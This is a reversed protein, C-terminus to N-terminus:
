SNFKKATWGATAGEQPGQVLAEAVAETATLAGGAEWEDAFRHNGLRAQLERALVEVNQDDWVPFGARTRGREAAALVRTAREPLGEAALVAGAESMGDWLTYHDDLEAALRIAERLEPIARDIREERVWCKGTMLHSDAVEAVWGEREFIPRAEAFLRRTEEFNRAYYEVVGKAAIARASEVADAVLRLASEAAQRGRDIDGMRAAVQAIDKLVVVRESEVAPNGERTSRALDDMWRLAEEKLRLADPLRGRAWEIESARIRAEIELSLDSTGPLALAQEVFSAAEVLQGRYVWLYGMGSMLRLADARRREHLVFDGAARINEREADLYRITTLEMRQTRPIAEVALAVFHQAHRSQLEWEAPDEALRAAAYERVTELMSYRDDTFRLLSKEVLSQLLDIDAQAVEAAAEMTCGGAFVALRRFLSQEEASCLEYSWEITARLTQQRPDADRGGRFLDLRQSLRELIQTPSLVRARAAALEVALPLSDLRRCLEAIEETPELHARECFLSVAEGEGLPPVTYEVEGRVRLLERSTVILHLEPCVELLSALEPAADIVQELNDLLLFLQREHIHEALGEKAGLTQAITDTVLAPDRLAALGVWFVGARFEPVLEAAAELALRTKGTGGPGTLTVLRAGSRVQELLDALERARGVFSSTPRPLNTNSITKLPPFRETGLQFIWVPDVFDKLRHEGLDAVEGDVLERTAKSLLVQGGHGAAAIRAGLHVDAGVYGEEAMHPTGTHLGIRVQIPGSALRAQTSRAAALADPARAFAIFFADGQTDVEVGGRATCTERLIRRHEALARAYEAAGLEHVLRTSGEVDTFLFTVTGSPLERRVTTM